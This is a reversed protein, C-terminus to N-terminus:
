SQLLTNTYPHFSGVYQRSSNYNLIHAPIGAVVAQPPVDKTIVSAPAAMSWDGMTVGGIIKVSNTVAVCNGLRPYEFRCTDSNYSLGLLVGPSLNCNVGITSSPNVIIDGFHGIYLGPGVNCTHHISIGYKFQYHRLMLRFLLYVPMWLMRLRSFAMYQCTRLLVTFRFGPIFWGRVYSRFRTNTFYRYLDAAIYRRCDRANRIIYDPKNADM